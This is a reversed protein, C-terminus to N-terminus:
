YTLAINEDMSSEYPIWMRVEETLLENSVSSHQRMSRATEWIARNDM